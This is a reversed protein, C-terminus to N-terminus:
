VPPADVAIPTELVPFEDEFSRAEDDPAPEFDSMAVDSEEEVVANRSRSSSRPLLRVFGM